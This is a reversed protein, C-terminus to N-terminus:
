TKWKTERTTTANNIYNNHPLSKPLRVGCDTNDVAIHLSLYFPKRGKNDTKVILANLVLIILSTCAMGSGM